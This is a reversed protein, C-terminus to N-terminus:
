LGRFEWKCIQTLPLPQYAAILAPTLSTLDQLEVLITEKIERTSNGKRHKGGFFYYYYYYYYNFLYFSFLHWASFFLFPFLLLNILM